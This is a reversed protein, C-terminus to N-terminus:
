RKSREWRSEIEEPETMGGTDARRKIIRDYSSQRRKARCSREWLLFVPCQMNQLVWITEWTM